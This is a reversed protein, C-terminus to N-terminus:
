PRWDPTPRPRDTAAMNKRHENHRRAAQEFFRILVAIEDATFEELSGAAQEAYPGFIERVREGFTATPRVSVARRDAADRERTVYGARILRDIVTSTAAPSLHAREALRKASHPGDLLLDLCRLDTRNVGLAEAAAQDFEDVERQYRRIQMALRDRLAAHRATQHM